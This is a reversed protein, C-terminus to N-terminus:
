FSYKVRGFLFNVNQASNASAYFRICQATFTLELNETLSINLTPNIFFVNSKFNVIGALSGSFLPTFPYTLAAFVSYGPLFLNKTSIETSGPQAIDIVNLSDDNGNYLGELQLFLSNKLTYDYGASMLFIGAENNKKEIPRFWSGEGRFGGKFLSGSWGAGLVFDEQGAIGGLFQFDYNLRNFRYLGAATAKLSDDFKVALEIGAAAGSYYQIRIADSGPKEEYDFEFYSYVNFLDNPNWVFTQGWNIRQRGATVQLVNGALNGTYSAYARDLQINLLFDRENVVNESLSTIGHDAEFSDAYGPYTNLLNGFLFRNRM